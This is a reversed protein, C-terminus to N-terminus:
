QMTLVDAIRGAADLSKETRNFGRNANPMDGFRRRTGRMAPKYSNSFYHNIDMQLDPM